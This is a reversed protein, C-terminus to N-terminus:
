GNKGEKKIKERELLDITLSILDDIQKRGFNTDLEIEKAMERRTFSGASCTIYHKDLESEKCNTIKKIYLRRIREYYKEM